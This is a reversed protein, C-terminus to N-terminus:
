LDLKTGGTTLEEAAGGHGNEIGTVGVDESAGLLHTTKSARVPPPSHRHVNNSHRTTFTM